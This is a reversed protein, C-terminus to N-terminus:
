PKATARWYVPRDEKEIVHVRHCTFCRDEAQAASPGVLKRNVTGCNPCIWEATSM